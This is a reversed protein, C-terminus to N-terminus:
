VDSGERGTNGVGQMSACNGKLTGPEVKNGQPFFFSISFALSCSLSTDIDLLTGVDLTTNNVSFHEGVCLM